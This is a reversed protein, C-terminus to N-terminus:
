SIYSQRYFFKFLSLFNQMPLTRGQDIKLISDKAGNM